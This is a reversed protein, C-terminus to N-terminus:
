VLWYTWIGTLWAFVAREATVKVIAIITGAVVHILAHRLPWRRDLPYRRALWVVVPTLLAWLWWEALSRRISLSWNGPRGTSLYTLSASVAFFLALATWGSWIAIWTRLRRM